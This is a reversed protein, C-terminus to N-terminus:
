NNIKAILFILAGFSLGSLWMFFYGIDDYDDKLSHALALCLLSLGAFILEIFWM